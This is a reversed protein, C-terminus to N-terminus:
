ASCLPIDINASFGESSETTYYIAADILALRSDIGKLGNGKNIKSCGIGNDMYNISIKSTTCNVSLLIRNAKAHKLTNTILETCVKKVIDYVKEDMKKITGRFFFNTQLSPSKVHRLVKDLEKELLVGSYIKDEKENISKMEEFGLRISHEAKKLTNMVMKRNKKYYLKAVELLKITVVLSHGVIDHLERAVFNRAGIRSTKKLISIKEELKINAIKLEENQDTLQNQVRIYPTVDNFTIVYQTGNLSKIPRSHITYYKGNYKVKSNERDSEDKTEKLFLGRNKKILNNIDNFNDIVDLRQKLKENMFIIDGASDLLCVPTDLMYTIEHKMIPSLDFFEYKFTAYVFLLLSWTFVIPTIDFVVRFHIMKFFKHLVKSVYILNLVIPFLIGTTVVCVYLKKRKKMQRKFKVGCFYAGILIYIYEVVFHLYFLPGFSDGWFDYRSYFLFHYPNTAVITFQIVPCVYLLLRTKLRFHRGKYYTYGFELFAIELLCIALYQLVIFSWRIDVTPSVTKLVKAIMWLIMTFQVYFFAKLSATRNAKMYLMMFAILSIIIAAIHWIEITAIELKLRSDM